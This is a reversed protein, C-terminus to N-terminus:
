RMYKERKESNEDVGKDFMPLIWCTFFSWALLMALIDGLLRAAAKGVKSFLCNKKM